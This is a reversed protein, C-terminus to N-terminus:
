GSYWGQHIDDLLSRNFVFISHRVVSANSDLFSSDIVDMDLWAKIRPQKMQVANRLKVNKSFVPAVSSSTGVSKDAGIEQMPIAVGGGQTIAQEAENAILTASSHLGPGGTASLQGALDTTARRKFTITDPATKLLSTFEDRCQAAIDFSKGVNVSTAYPDVFYAGPNKGMSLRDTLFEAFELAKDHSDTYSTILRTYQRLVPFKITIFDVLDLEGHILTVSSLEPLKEAAGLAERKRALHSEPLPEFLEEIYETIHCTIRCGMSHGIVNFKRFGLSTLVKIFDRLDEKVGQSKSM